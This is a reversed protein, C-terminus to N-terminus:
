KGERRKDKSRRREQGEAVVSRQYCKRKRGKSEKNMEKERVSIDKCKSGAVTSNGERM